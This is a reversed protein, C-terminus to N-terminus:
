RVAERRPFCRDREHVAVETHMAHIDDLPFLACACRDAGHQYDSWRRQVSWWAGAAILWLWTLGAIAMVALAALKLTDM